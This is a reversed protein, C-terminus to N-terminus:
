LKKEGGNIFRPIKRLIRREKTYKDCMKYILRHILDPNEVSEESIKKRGLEDFIKELQLKFEFITPVSM